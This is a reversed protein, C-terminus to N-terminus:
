MNVEELVVDPEHLYYGQMFHVGLQWLVAMTNADEVREAITEINKRKAEEVFGKIKHQLIQNTALGQMLSGDIKIFDTHVYNLIQLPERDMGFHEIAFRFKMKQLREVLAKAQRMHQRADEQTIQFVLRRPEIGATEVQTRLWGYLSEDLISDKSLRIFVGDPKKEVCLTISAAIIWRDLNKMLGNRAAAPIFDGALVDNGQHDLMRVLIDYMTQKSGVLSAVPQHLLRFRNDMLAAKIHKIWIADYAQVRTETDEVINTSVQNGGRERGQKSAKEAEEILTAIDLNQGDIKAIGVTCTFSFSNDNVEFLNESVKTIIHEGWAEVDRMTGRELMVTFMTGGFRGYLDSPQMLGGILKAFSTLVEESALPGVKDKIASFKDPKIYALARVGGRAPGQLREDLRELFYRRHYFGTISDRHVVDSLQQEPRKQAPPETSICIRICSEGELEAKTLDLDMPLTSGDSCNGACRLPHGNWKGQACAVLAGKLAAHSEQEFRDMVPLGTIDNPDAFGFLELWAPNAEIIIGDQVYSIAAASGQMLAQLQRKYQNASDLTSNLAKELRYARIERTAVSALRSRNTLSVLDQAGAAMARAIADENANSELAIVPVEPAYRERTKIIDEIGAETEKSFCLLLEPKIKSLTVGLDRADSLWTCHVPHGANRLTSNIAEVHEERKTVVIIPVAGQDSM